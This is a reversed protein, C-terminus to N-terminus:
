SYPQKSTLTECAQPNEPPHLKRDYWFAAAIAVTSIVVLVVAVAIILAENAGVAGSSTATPPAIPCRRPDLSIAGQVRVVCSDTILTIAPTVQFQACDFICRVCTVSSVGDATGVLYDIDNQVFTCDAV